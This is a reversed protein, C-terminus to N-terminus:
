RGLEDGDLCRLLSHEYSFKRANLYFFNNLRDKTDLENRDIKSRGDPFVNKIFVNFKEASLGEREDERNNVFTFNVGNEDKLVNLYKKKYERTDDDEIELNELGEVLGACEKYAICNKPVLFELKSDRAIQELDYGMGSIIFDSKRLFTLSKIPEKNEDFWLIDLSVEGEEKSYMFGIKNKEDIVRNVFKKM